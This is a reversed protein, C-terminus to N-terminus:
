PQCASGAWITRRARMLIDLSSIWLIARSKSAYGQFIGTHDEDVRFNGSKGPRTERGVSDLCHRIERGGRGPWEDECGGLWVSGGCADVSMGSVGAFCAIAHEHVHWEKLVM